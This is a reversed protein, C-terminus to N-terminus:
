CISDQNFKRRVSCSVVFIINLEKVTTWKLTHQDYKYPPNNAASIDDAVGAGPLTREEIFVNTILSNIITPSIPSYTKSWLVVGSTTLIEFTDLMSRTTTASYSAPFNNDPFERTDEGDCFILSHSDGSGQTTVSDILQLCPNLRGGRLFGLRLATHARRSLFPNPLPPLVIRPDWATVLLHKKWLRDGPSRGKCSV